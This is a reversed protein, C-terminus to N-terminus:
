IKSNMSLYDLVSGNNQFTHVEAVVVVVVIIIIVLRKITSLNLGQIIPYM